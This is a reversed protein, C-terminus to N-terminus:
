SASSFYKSLLFPSSQPVQRSLSCLFGMRIRSQLLGMQEATAFSAGLTSSKRQSSHESWKEFDIDMKTLYEESFFNKRDECIKANLNSLAIFFELCAKGIEVNMSEAEVLQPITKMLKTLRKSSSNPNQVEEAIARILESRTEKQPLEDRLEPYQAFLLDVGNKFITRYKEELEYFHNQKAECILHLRGQEAIAEQM